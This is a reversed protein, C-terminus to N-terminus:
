RGASSTVSRCGLWVWIDFEVDRGAVGLPTMPAYRWNRRCAPRGRRDRFHFRRAEGFNWAGLRGQASAFNVPADAPSVRVQKGPPGPLSAMNADAIDAMARINAKFDEPRSPGQNGAVDNTGALIHAMKPKLAVVDASFRLLMQASTQGSIGRDLRRADFFGPDAVKWLETISDGM